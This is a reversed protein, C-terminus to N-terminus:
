RCRCRIDDEIQKLAPGVHINYWHEVDAADIMALRDLM